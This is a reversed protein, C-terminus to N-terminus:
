LIRSMCICDAPRQREQKQGGGGNGEGARKAGDLLGRLNAKPVEVRAAAALLFLFCVFLCFNTVFNCIAKWFIRMRDQAM